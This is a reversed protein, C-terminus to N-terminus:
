VNAHGSTYECACVYARVRLFVSLYVRARVCVFVCVCVCVCVYLARRTWMLVCEYVLLSGNVYLQKFFANIILLHMHRAHEEKSCYIMHICTFLFTYFTYLLWLSLSLVHDHIHCCRSVPFFDKRFSSLSILIFFYSM